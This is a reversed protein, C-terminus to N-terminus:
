HRMVHIFRIVAGGGVQPQGAALHRAEHAIPKQTEVVQHRAVQTRRCHGLDLGAAVHAVAALGARREAFDPRLGIRCQSPHEPQRPHRRDDVAQNPGVRAVVMVGRVKRGRVRPLAGIQVLIRLVVHPAVM